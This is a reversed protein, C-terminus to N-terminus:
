MLFGVFIILLGATNVAQSLVSHNPARPDLHGLNVQEEKGYIAYWVM